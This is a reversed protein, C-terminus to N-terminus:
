LISPSLEPFGVYNVVKHVGKKEVMESSIHKRQLASCRYLYWCDARSVLIRREFVVSQQDHVSRPHHAHQETTETAGLRLWSSASGCEVTVKSNVRQLARPSSARARCGSKTARPDIEALTYLLLAVVRNERCPEFDLYKRDRCAGWIPGIVPGPGFGSVEERRPSSADV